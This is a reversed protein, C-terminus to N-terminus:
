RMGVRVVRQASVRRERVLEEDSLCPRSRIPLDCRATTAYRSQTAGGQRSVGKTHAAVARRQGGDVRHHALVLDQHRVRRDRLLLVRVVHPVRRKM